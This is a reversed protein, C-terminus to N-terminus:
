PKSSAVGASVLKPAREDDRFNRHGDHPEDSGTQHHTGARRAVRTFGM